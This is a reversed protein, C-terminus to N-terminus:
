VSANSKEEEIAQCSATLNAEYQDIWAKLRNLAEERATEFDEQPSEMTLIKQGPYIGINLLDGKRYVGEGGPASAYALPIKPDTDKYALWQGFFQGKIQDDYCDFHEVIDTYCGFYILDGPKIEKLCIPCVGNKGEQFDGNEVIGINGKWGTWKWIEWGNYEIPDRKPSPTCLSSMPRSNIDDHINRM